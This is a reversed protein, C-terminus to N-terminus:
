AILFNLCGPRSSSFIKSRRIADPKVKFSELRGPNLIGRCDFVFGGMEVLM